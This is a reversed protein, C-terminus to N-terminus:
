LFLTLRFHQLVSILSLFFDQLVSILMLCFHQRILIPMLRFHQRVLILALRFHQRASIVILPFHQATFDADSSFTAARFNALSLFRALSFDTYASFTASMFFAISSFTASGFNATVQFEYLMLNVSPFWVYRFDYSLLRKAEECEEKPLEKIKAIGEKVSNLRTKFFKEFKEIDKEKTPLHFLCYQKGDTHKILPYDFEKVCVNERINEVQDDEVKDHIHCQPQEEIKDAPINEAKVGKSVRPNRGKLPNGAESKKRPM